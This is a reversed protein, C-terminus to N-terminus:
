RFVRDLARPDGTVDRAALRAEMWAALGVAALIWGGVQEASDGIEKVVLPLFRVETVGGGYRLDRAFVFPLILNSAVWWVPLAVATRGLWCARSPSVDARLALLALGAHVLLLTWTLRTILGLIGPVWLSSASEGVLVPGLFQVVVSSLLVAGCAGTVLRPGRASPRRRTVHNGAGAALASLLLALVTITGFAAGPPSAYAIEGHLREVYGWSSLVAGCALMPIARRAGRWRFLVDAMWAAIGVPLFIRAREWSSADRIRDWGWTTTVPPSDADAYVGGRLEEPLLFSLALLGAGFLGWRRSWRDADHGVPADPPENL